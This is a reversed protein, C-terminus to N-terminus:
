CNFCILGSGTGAAPYNSGGANNPIANMRPAYGSTRPTYPDHPVASYPVFVRHKKNGSGAKNYGEQPRKRTEKYEVKGSEAKMAKNVLGQFNGFDMLHVDRRVEPDLGKRFM